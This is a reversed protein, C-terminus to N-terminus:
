GERHEPQRLSNQLNRAFRAATIAIVSATVAVLFSMFIGPPRDEKDGFLLIIVVGAAVFGLMAIACRKITRLAAVTAPSFAGTQRVQGLLGFARYLAYFFPTAGVYVFALFPDKFYIAFLSAHANRGELHPEGLLFALAGLGILVIAIQLLLASSNKM